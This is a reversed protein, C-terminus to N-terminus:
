YLQSKFNKEFTKYQEKKYAGEGIFHLIPEIQTPTLYGPVAAIADGKTDLYVMTPFSLKGNTLAIALPHTRENAAPQYAKGKYVIKDKSEANFKVAYFAGDIYEAIKRHQFTYADMKKCYGCWDTYVDILIPKPNKETKKLAEELSLWEIKQAQARSRTLLSLPLLLVSCLALSLLKKAIMTM